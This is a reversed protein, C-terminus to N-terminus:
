GRRGPGRVLREQRSRARGALAVQAAVGLEQAVLPVAGGGQREALARDLGPLGRDVGPQELGRELLVLAAVLGRQGRQLPRQREGRAVGLHALAAVGQAGLQALRAVLRQARRERRR